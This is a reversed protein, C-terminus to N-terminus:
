YVANIIIDTNMFFAIIIIILIKMTKEFFKLELDSHSIFYISCYIINQM